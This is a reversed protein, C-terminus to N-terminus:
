KNYYNKETTHSRYPTIRDFSAWSQHETIEINKHEYGTNRKNNNNPMINHDQTEHSYVTDKTPRDHPHAPGTNRKGSFIQKHGSEIKHTNFIGKRKTSDGIEQGHDSEYQPGSDYIDGWSQHADIEMHNPPMGRFNTPDDNNWDQTPYEYDYSYFDANRDTIRSNMKLNYDENIKKGDSDFGPKIPCCVHIDELIKNCRFQELYLQNDLDVTNLNSMLKFIPKCQKLPVCTGNMNDPTKCWDLKSCWVKPRRWEDYGCHSQKLFEAAEPTQGKKGATGICSPLIKSTYMRNGSLSSELHYMKDKNETNNLHRRRAEVTLRLSYPMFM